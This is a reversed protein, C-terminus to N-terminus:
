ANLYKIVKKINKDIELDMTKTVSNPDASHSYIIIIIMVMMMMMMMMM